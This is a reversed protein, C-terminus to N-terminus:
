SLDKKAFLLYYNNGHHRLVYRINPMSGKFFHVADERLLIVASFLVRLSLLAYLLGLLRCPGMGIVRKLHNYAYKLHYSSM